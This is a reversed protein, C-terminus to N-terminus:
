SRGARASKESVDTKAHLDKGPTEDSQEGRVAQLAAEMHGRAQELNQKADDKRLLVANQLSRRLENELRWLSRLIPPMNKLFDNPM